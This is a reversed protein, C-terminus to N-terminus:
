NMLCGGNIFRVKCKEFCKLIIVSNNNAIKTLLLENAWVVSTLTGKESPNTSRLCVGFLLLIGLKKLKYVM